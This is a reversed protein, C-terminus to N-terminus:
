VTYIIMGIWAFVYGVFIHPVFAAAVNEFLSKKNKICIFLHNAMFSFGALIMIIIVIGVGTMGSISGFFITLITFVFGDAIGYIGICGVFVYLTVFVLVIILDMESLMNKRMWLLVLAPVGGILHKWRTVECTKYDEIAAVALYVTVTLICVLFIYEKM